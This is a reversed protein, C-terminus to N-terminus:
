SLDLKILKQSITLRDASFCSPFVIALFFLFTALFCLFVLFVLFCPLFLLLYSKTDQYVFHGGVPPRKTKSFCFGALRPSQTM